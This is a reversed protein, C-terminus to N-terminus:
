EKDSQTGHMKKMLQKLEQMQESPPIQDAQKNLNSTEQLEKRLIPIEKPARISLRVKDGSIDTVMVEIDDGILISESNRRTIVLM